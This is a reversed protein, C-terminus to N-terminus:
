KIKIVVVKKKNSNELSRCTIKVKKGKGAKFTKVIGKASVKAYKPNSSSWIVQKNAGKTASVKAKLKIRKGAKVTKKGSVTIKKVMGKMSTLQCTAKKGSGDMATVTIIVKKGGSKKQMTVNGNQDVRAVKPDSSTWSLKKNAANAPLVQATLKVKKGAAIKNSSASLKIATVKIAQPPQSPKAVSSNEGTSAGQKQNVTLRVVTEADIYNDTETAQIVINATGIGKLTVLGDDSVTAVKENSSGYSLWGDGVALEADLSFPSDGMIKTITTTPVTITQTHYWQPKFAFGEYNLQLHGVDIDKLWNKTCYLDRLERNKSLDLNSLENRDCYLSKLVTNGSLDLHTLQNDQCSLESLAKNGNM